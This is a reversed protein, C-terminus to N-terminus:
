FSKTYWQTAGIVSSLGAVNSLVQQGVNYKWVPDIYDTKKDDNYACTPTFSSFGNTASWMCTKANEQVRTNFNGVQLDRFASVTMGFSQGNDLRNWSVTQGYPTFDLLRLNWDYTATYADFAEHTYTLRLYSFINFSYTQSNDAAPANPGQQNYLTTYGADASVTLSGEYYNMSNDSNPVNFTLLNQSWSAAATGVLAALSLAKYM